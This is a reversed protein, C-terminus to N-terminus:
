RKINNALAMRTASQRALQQTMWFSGSDEGLMARSEETSVRGDAGRQPKAATIVIRQPADKEATQAEAFLPYNDDFDGAHAASMGLSVTLALTVATLTTTSKM